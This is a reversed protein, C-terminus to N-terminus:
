ILNINSIKQIQSIRCHHHEIIIIIPFQSIWSHDFNPFPSVRSKFKNPFQSLIHINYVTIKINSLQSIRSLHCDPFTIIPFLHLEIPYLEIFHFLTSPYLSMWSSPINGHHMYTYAAIIFLVNSLFQTTSLFYLRVWAYTQHLKFWTKKYKQRNSETNMHLRSTQRNWKIGFNSQFYKTKWTAM